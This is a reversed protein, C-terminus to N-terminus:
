WPSSVDTEPPRARVAREIAQRDVDRRPSTKPKRPGLPAPLVVVSFSSICSTNGVLPSPRSERGAPRRRRGDAAADAVERLIRVEVVVQGGLFQEVVVARSNPMDAASRRVRTM